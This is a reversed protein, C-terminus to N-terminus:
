TLVNYVVDSAAHVNALGKQPALRHACFLKVGGGKSDFNEFKTACTGLRFLLVIKQVEIIAAVLIRSHRDNIPFAVVGRELNFTKISDTRENRHYKQRSEFYSLQKRTEVITSLLSKNAYSYRLTSHWKSTLNKQVTM